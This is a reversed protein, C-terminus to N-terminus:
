IALGFRAKVASPDLVLSELLMASAIREAAIKLLRDYQLGVLAAGDHRIEGIRARALLLHMLFDEAEVPDDTFHTSVAHNHQPHITYDIAYKKLM